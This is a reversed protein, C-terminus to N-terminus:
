YCGGINNIVVVVTEPNNSSHRMKLCGLVVLGVAVGAMIAVERKNNRVIAGLEEKKDDVIVDFAELTMERKKKDLFDRIIKM